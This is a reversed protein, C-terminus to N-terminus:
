ENAKSLSSLQYTNKYENLYTDNVIAKCYSLSDIIKSGDSKKLVCTMLKSCGKIM